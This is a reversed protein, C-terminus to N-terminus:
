KLNEALLAALRALLRKQDAAAATAVFVTDDGALTGVVEPWGVRDIAIGVAQAAGTVTLLVILNPGAPRAARVFHAAEELGTAVAAPAPAPMRYRGAVKAVGLDTLDRSVSSQTAEFGRQRLAAVLDLQSRIVARRLLAQIAHHRQARDAHPNPMVIRMIM